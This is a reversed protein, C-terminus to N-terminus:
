KTIYVSIVNEGLNALAAVRHHGDALMYYGNGLDQVYIKGYNGTQQIIRIWETIKGQAPGGTVFEDKPNNVINNINVKGSILGQGQLYKVSSAVLGGALAGGATYAVTGWSGKDLFEGISKSNSAAVAAAAGLVVSSGIFAGAALATTASVTIMSGAIISGAVQTVAIAAPAFGGATVVTLAAAGAVILGGIAWHYWAEGTPDVFMLPNGGCYVYLNSSQMIAYIDPMLVGHAMKVAQDGYIMNNINWHTDESTFRGNKPNYYRARLYYTGSEIDFYQGCYRFYNTDAGDPDKENGFADYEYTRLIEGDEDVLQVVDGHANYLYFNGNSSHFLTL